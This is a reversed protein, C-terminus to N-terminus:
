LPDIKLRRKGDKERILSVMAGVQQEELWQASPVDAVSLLDRGRNVIVPTPSVFVRNPYRQFVARYYFASLLFDHGPAFGEVRLFINTKPPLQKLLDDVWDIEGTNHVEPETLTHYFTEGPSGSESHALLNVLIASGILLFAIVLHARAQYRVNNWM